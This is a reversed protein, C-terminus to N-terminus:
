FQGMIKLGMRVTNPRDFAVGEPDGDMWCYVADSLYDVNWVYFFPKLEAHDMFNRWTCRM